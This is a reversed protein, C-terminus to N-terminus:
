RDAQDALYLPVNIRYDKPGTPNFTVRIKDNGHPALDGSKPSVFFLNQGSKSKYNQKLPLYSLTAVKSPSITVLATAPFVARVKLPADDIEWSLGNRSPNSIEVEIHYINSSGPGATVVRDGFDITSTLM